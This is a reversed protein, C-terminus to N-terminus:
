GHGGGEAEQLAAGDFDDADLMEREAEETEDVAVSDRDPLDAAIYEVLSEAGSAEPFFLALGVVDARAGLDFRHKAGAKTKSDKDIVYVVLLGNTHGNATKWALMRSDLKDATDSGGLEEPVESPDVDILRDGGSVLAGINADEANGGPDRRTRQVLQITGADGFIRERASSGTTFVVSWYNLGASPDNTAANELRIYEILREPVFVRADAVQQYRELFRIVEDAPVDRYVINKRVLSHEAGSRLLRDAFEDLAALNSNLAAADTTPFVTTQVFSGSYSVAVKKGRNRNAAVVDMQPHTRIRVAAEIPRVEGKGYKRIEDRIELEILSLHRFWEYAGDPMWVRPLDEYGERYGFWRGMQLLSDYSKSTRLFYSSVLGELTLGRSMTNGGVVIVTEPSDGYSLRDQSRYNDVVVRTTGLVDSIASLVAEFQLPEHGYLRAPLRESEEVWQRELEDLLDLDEAVFRGRLAHLSDTIAAATTFHDNALTSVNFLMTSHKIEGSRARRAATALVFWRIAAEFSSGEFTDPRSADRVAEAEADAVTRVVDLETADDATGKGFMARTGFYGDPEELSIIFDKPYLDEADKANMLLNAFPTATYAVYTVRTHDHVIQRLLRNITSLRGHGRATNPTAQDAEDDIILIPTKREVHPSASELWQKLRRLRAPNKKVVAYAPKDGVLDQDAKWFAQFDREPTTLMRWHKGDGFGSEDIRNQTQQRLSDTLGSLVIVLKYGVDAAKAALAMFSTTKGSQVYGLVLGLRNFEALTPNGCSALIRDAAEGVRRVTAADPLKESLVSELAAYRPGPPNQPIYWSELQSDVVADDANFGQVQNAAEQFALKMALAAERGFKTELARVAEAQNGYRNVQFAFYEVWDPESLVFGGLGGSVSM